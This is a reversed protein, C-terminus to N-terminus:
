GSSRGTALVEGGAGQVTAGARVAERYSRPSDGYHAKFTRSFHSTDSFGWRSAIEAIPAGSEALEDRARALRRARVVESVTQGSASYVRNVTRVSVGVAHAVAAAGIAHDLVHRDIYRDMAARLAPRAAASGVTAEAHVAGIVLELTANRAATVAAPSLEPLSHSLVDLYSTLLRTAPATGDLTAGAEIWARAGVEALASRPILLSRKALREWVAFRAPETSVWAVADGPRLNVEATGQSVTERGARTILIIVFEGETEALQRRQRTGSCPDCECDVLALDGIWSRRVTATFGVGPEPVAVSWSLHTASLAGQWHEVSYQDTPDTSWTEYATTTV